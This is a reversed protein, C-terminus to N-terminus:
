QKNQPKMRYSLGLSIPFLQEFHLDNTFLKLPIDGRVDIYFWTVKYSFSCSIVGYGYDQELKYNEKEGNYIWGIGIGAIIPHRKNQKFCYNIDIYNLTHYQSLKFDKTYLVSDIIMREIKFLFINRSAFSLRKSPSYISGNLCLGWLWDGIKYNPGIEFYLDYKHNSNSNQSQTNNLMLFLMCISLLLKLIWYNM